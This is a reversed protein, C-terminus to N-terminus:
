RNRYKVWITHIYLGLAISGIIIIARDAYHLIDM